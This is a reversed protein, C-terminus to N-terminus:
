PEVDGGKLNRGVLDRCHALPDHLTGLTCPRWRWVRILGHEEAAKRAALAIRDPRMLHYEAKVARHRAQGAVRLVLKAALERALVPDIHTAETQRRHAVIETADRAPWHKLRDEDIAGPAPPEHTHDRFGHADFAELPDRRDARM